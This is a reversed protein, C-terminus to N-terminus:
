RNQTRDTFTLLIGNEGEHVKARQVPAALVFRGLFLLHGSLSKLEGLIGFGEGDSGDEGLFVQAALIVELFSILWGHVALIRVNLSCNYDIEPM